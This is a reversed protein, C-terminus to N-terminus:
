EGENDWFGESHFVWEKSLCEPSPSQPPSQSCDVPKTAGLFHDCYAVAHGGLDPKTQLDYWVYFFLGTQM